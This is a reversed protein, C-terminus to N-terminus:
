KHSVGYKSLLKNFTHHKFHSGGDSIIAKPVGFRPFIVKKFLNVFVKSDNTPSAMVEAWKSVYDVAVLIHRNGQSSIFPGMFDIAWVDFIELELIPNHPMEDRRSINGTRQCRDCTKVFSWADKFLTPWFLMSQLVKPATKQASMYGGCPSSHCMSLVSQFEEDPVCRRLIGDVGRKLLTPDDWIYKKAEYKLRRQQQSTFTPPIDSCALYNFIDCFWLTEKADLAYLVDDRLADEIPLDDEIM